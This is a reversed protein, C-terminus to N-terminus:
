RLLERSYKAAIFRVAPDSDTTAKKLATISPGDGPQNVWDYVFISAQLARARVAPDPDDIYAAPTDAYLYYRTASRGNGCWGRDNNHLEFSPGETVPADSYIWSVLQWRSYQILFLDTAVITVISLIMVAIPGYRLHTLLKPTPQGVRRFGRLELLAWTLIWLAAITVRVDFGLGDFEPRDYQVLQMESYLGLLQSLRFLLYPPLPLYLVFIYASLTACCLRLLVFM